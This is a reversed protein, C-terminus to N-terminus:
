EAVAPSIPQSSAKALASSLTNLGDRSLSRIPGRGSGASRAYSRPPPPDDSFCVVIATVNDSAHKALCTDVQACPLRGKVPQLNGRM